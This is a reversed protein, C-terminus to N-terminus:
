KEANKPVDAPKAAVREALKKKNEAIVQAIASKEALNKEPNVAACVGGILYATELQYYYQRAFKEGITLYAMADLLKGQKEMLVAMNNNAYPNDFDAKIINEFEAQAATLKSKSLDNFGKTLMDFIDDGMVRPEEAAVILSAFGVLGLTLMVLFIKRLLRM